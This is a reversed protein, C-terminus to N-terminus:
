TELRWTLNCRLGGDFEATVDLTDPTRQCVRHNGSGDGVRDVFAGVYVGRRLLGHGCWIPGDITVRPGTVSVDILECPTEGAFVRFRGSTM